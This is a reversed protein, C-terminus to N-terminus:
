KLEVVTVGSEGEGYNGLRFSKVAKNRRLSAHVAKRLAGTGKGHIITVTELHAMVAADIYNDLVSEAELTEMGRIDLLACRVGHRLIRQSPAFQPQKKATAAREAAEILRVEDAKVKMQLVGAKLTLTGDKVATVEAQRRTGPIEVLDGVEIPRSPKPIPEASEDRVGCRRAGAQHQAHDRRAPREDAPCRAKEAAACRTSSRRFTDDAVSKAETLLRKAEAEGRSRANEKAREMQTRFERAKRADEERQAYLRDVEAKEKELQQRKQELQTLVDEFRISESDMQAKAKEIVAESLGLRKSIAFANSKGPIGILLKYTPCLTEV